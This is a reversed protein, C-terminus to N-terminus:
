WGATILLWCFHISFSIRRIRERERSKKKFQDFQDHTRKDDGDLFLANLRCCYYYLPFDSDLCYKTFTTTIICLLVDDFSSSFDTCVRTYQWQWEWFVWFLFVRIQFAVFIHNSSNIAQEFGWYFSTLWQFFFFSRDRNRNCCILLSIPINHLSFIACVYSSIPMFHTAFDDVVVTNIAMSDFWRTKEKKKIEVVNQVHFLLLSSLCVAAMVGNFPLNM